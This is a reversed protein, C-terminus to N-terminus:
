DLQPKSKVASEAESDSMREVSALLQELTASEDAPARSNVRREHTRDASAPREIQGAIYAALAAPTPYNWAVVPTLVIQYRDELERSLEVAALSDLGYQAFPRERDLDDRPIGRRQELWELLHAEIRRSKWATRTSRRQPSHGNSGPVANGNGNMSHGNVGAVPSIPVAIGSGETKSSIPYHGNVTAKPASPTPEAARPPQTWEALIRLEGASWLERTRQRQIKGSTTHPLTAPRVLILSHLDLEHEAIIAQRVARQVAAFDADRCHRDVEHVLVLGEEGDETTVGFAAGASGQLAPHAMAATHEIDQPYHNRGRIIVVEKQRGTIYLQGKHLFGLDGTRLWGRHEVGAHEDGTPEDGALRAQFLTRSEDERNWYGSAVAPGRVWIEGIRDPPTRRATEPDVIAIETGLLGAGCGVLDCSAAEEEGTVQEVRHQRLASKSLRTVTLEAPGAGGSVILTAEALGYCPYFANSRFGCEAFTQQFRRLTGARIPEAGCFATRWTSLDLERRQEPTTREVCLDYAFNPAGSVAARRESIAKLWSLPRQLFSTPSMLVSHIGLALPALIAGILGMDHYAPLWFVATEGTGQERNEPLQMGASIMRLNHLLNEHTVIVGRPETTSGSTYQLFAAADPTVPAPSWEDALERALTDTALFEPPTQDAEVFYTALISEMGSTSLIMAAKCDAAIAQLRGSSRRSRPYVAPVAIMGALLCGYFGIIFDLGPPYALLIREGRPLRRRLAAATARAREELERVTLLDEGGGDRVFTYAPTAARTRAAKQLLEVFTIPPSLSAKGDTSNHM